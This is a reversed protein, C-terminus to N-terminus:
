FRNYLISSHSANFVVIFVIFYSTKASNPDTKLTFPMCSTLPEVGSDEVGFRKFQLPKLPKKMEFSLMQSFLPESVDIRWQKGTM